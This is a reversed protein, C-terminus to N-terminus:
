FCFFTTYNQGSELSMVRNKCEQYSKAEEYQDKLTEARKTGWPTTQWGPLHEYGPRPTSYSQLTRVPTAGKGPFESKRYNSVSHISSRGVVPAAAAAAQCTRWGVTLSCAM